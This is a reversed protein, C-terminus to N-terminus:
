WRAYFVCAHKVFFLSPTVPLPFFIVGFYAFIPLTQQPDKVRGVVPSRKSPDLSRGIYLLLRRVYFGLVLRKGGTRGFPLEPKRRKRKCLLGCRHGVCM